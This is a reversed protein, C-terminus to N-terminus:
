LTAVTSSDASTLRSEQRKERRTRTQSRTPERAKRQLHLRQRLEPVQGLVHVENHQLLQRLGECVIDDLHRNHQLSIQIARCRSSSSSM